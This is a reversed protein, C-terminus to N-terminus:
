RLAISPRGFLYREFRKFDEMSCRTMRPIHQALSKVAEKMDALDESLFSAREVCLGVVTTLTVADSSKIFQRDFVM